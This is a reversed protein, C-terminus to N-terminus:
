SLMVSVAVPKEKVSQLQYAKPTIIRRIEGVIESDIQLIKAMRDHLEIEQCDISGDVKAIEWSTALLLRRKIEAKKPKKDYLINQNLILDEFSIETNLADKIRKRDKESISSNAMLQEIATKEQKSFIGDVTAMPLSAIIVDALFQSLSNQEYKNFAYMVGGFVGAGVTVGLGIPALITLMSYASSSVVLGSQLGLFTKISTWASAQVFVSSAAGSTGIGTGLGSVTGMFASTSVKQWPELSEKIIEIEEKNLSLKSNDDRVYIVLEPLQNCWFKNIEKSLDKGEAAMKNQLQELQPSLEDFLNQVKNVLETWKPGFKVKMSLVDDRLNQVDNGYIAEVNVLYDGNINLILDMTALIVVLSLLLAIPTTVAGIIITGTFPVFSHALFTLISGLILLAITLYKKAKSGPQSDQYLAVLVKIYLPIKPIRSLSFTLLSSLSMLVFPAVYSLLVGVSPLITSAIFATFM